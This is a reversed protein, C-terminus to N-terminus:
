CILDELKLNKKAEGQVDLIIKGESLMILRDGYKIADRMSHTIMLATLNLKSIFNQTIELVQNAAKPDLASTHEDLLLVEPEVLTAMVMAAVQRQGGSLNELKTYLKSVLNPALSELIKEFDRINNKDFYKRFEARENKGKALELNELLTLEGVTGHDVKQSVLSINRDEQELICNLLTSKGSGNHGILVCFQGKPIELNLNDLVPKAKNDQNPYYKTLNRIDLM